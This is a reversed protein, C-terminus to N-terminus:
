LLGMLSLLGMIFFSASVHNGSDEVSSSSDSKSNLQSTEPEARPKNTGRKHRQNHTKHCDLVGCIESSLSEVVSTSFSHEAESATNADTKDKGSLSKIISAYYAEFESVFEFDSDSESASISFGPGSASVSGSESHESDYESDSDSESFSFGWGSGSESHSGSFGSDHQSESHEEEASIGFESGSDSGEDSYEQVGSSHSKANSNSKDASSYADSAGHKESSTTNVLANDPHSPARKLNYGDINSAFVLLLVVVITTKFNPLTM